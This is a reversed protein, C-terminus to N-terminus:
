NYVGDIQVRQYMNLWAANTLGLGTDLVEPVPLPQYDNKSRFRIKEREAVIFNLEDTIRLSTAVISDMERAIREQVAREETDADNLLSRIRKMEEYRESVRSVLSSAEKLENDLSDRISRIHSLREKSM